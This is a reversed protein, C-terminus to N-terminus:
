MLPLNQLAVVNGIHDVGKFDRLSRHVLDVNKKELYEYWDHLVSSGLTDTVSIPFSPLWPEKEQQM